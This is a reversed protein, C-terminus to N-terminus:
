SPRIPEAWYDVWFISFERDDPSLPLASNILIQLKALPNEPRISLESYTALLRECADHLTEEILQDRSEFYYNLIGTSVGAKAAVARVTAGHIGGEAVCKRVAQIVQARRLGEVGVRPM